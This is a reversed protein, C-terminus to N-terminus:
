AFAEFPIPKQTDTGSEIANIQNIVNMLKMIPFYNKSELYNTMNKYLYEIQFMLEGTIPFEYFLTELKSEVKLLTL